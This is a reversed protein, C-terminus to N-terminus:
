VLRLTYVAAAIWVSCAVTFMTGAVWKNSLIGSTNEYASQASYFSDMGAARALRQRAEQLPPIALSARQVQNRGAVFTALFVLAGLFGIVIGAAYQKANLSTAYGASMVAMTLLYYNLIQLGRTNRYEFIKWSHDLILTITKLEEETISETV